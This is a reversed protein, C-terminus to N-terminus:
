QGLAKPLCANVTADKFSDPFGGETQFAEILEPTTFRNQIEQFGCDCFSSMVNTPVGREVGYITCSQVFKIKNEATFVTTPAAAGAVAPTAEIPKPEFKKVGCMRYSLDILQGKKNRMYCFPESNQATTSRSFGILTLVSTFLFWFVLRKM